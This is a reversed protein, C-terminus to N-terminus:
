SGICDIGHFTHLNTPKSEYRQQVLNSRDSARVQCQFSAALLAMEHRISNLLALGTSGSRKLVGDVGDMLKRNLCLVAEANNLTLLCLM